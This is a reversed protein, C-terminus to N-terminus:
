GASPQEGRHTLAAALQGRSAIGLKPFIRYLHSSVTRHSLFLRQGIERNSLGQAALEAIQTEQPSLLARPNSTPQWGREGTARLEQDALNAWTRAGVADFASRAARLPARSELVRRQRRLWSGHALDIRARHWPLGSAAGDRAAHFLSEASARDALVARAYELAIAAGTPPSAGVLREVCALAARAEARRDTRVAADALYGLAWVQQMRQFAPDATEFMRHLEGYAQEHRNAGLEATGRALQVGALLSSAANPTRLAVHEAESLLAHRTDWGERVADILAVAIRATAAWLSQGTEDALRMAEDASRAPDFVGLYVEAWARIALAEALLSMRGQARLEQVPTSLFGVAHRFDGTCFAAIGLLGALEPQGDADAPWRALQEVVMPTREHFGCLAHLALLRPDHAPLNVQEAAQVIEHRLTPGPDRWWVRRAAGVLLQMALDVDREGTAHEALDVLHRVEAPEGTSGDHFVGELWALRSRDRHRLSMGAVQAKIQEVHSFRGLQFGLEAAGLLRAAQSQPDPSLAAARELWAAASAIAGRRRANGAAQELEAAIREDRGSVSSARHWVARDPHGTLVRALAAHAQRRAAPPMGQRLASGVLPHAIRYREGTVTLLGHEFAPQATGLDVPSGHLIGAAALVDDLVDGDDVAAVTLVARVAPDLHEARIAFARELRTTMPLDEDFETWAYRGSELAGAFEVLALPNGRAQRLVRERVAPPLRPARADLLEASAADDIGDLETWAITHPDAFPPAEPRSTCLVIVREGAIRRCVFALVDTSPQDMWHLDDLCVLVPSEGAADVLLELVALSTFFPQVEISDSMAFCVLLADRQPAPLRDVRPLLPRLLQHLGAFPLHTESQSGRATLVTFGASRAHEVVEAQLTSKGVGPEGFLGIARGGSDVADLHGFLSRLEDDRGVLRRDNTTSM